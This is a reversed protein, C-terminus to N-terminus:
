LSTILCVLARVEVRWHALVEFCSLMSQSSRIGRCSELKDCGLCECLVHRSLCIHQKAALLLAAEHRDTPGQIAPGTLLAVMCRSGWSAYKVRDPVWLGECRRQCLTDQSMGTCCATGCGCITTALGVRPCHPDCEGQLLRIHQTATGTPASLLVQM